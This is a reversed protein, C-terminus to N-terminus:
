RWNSSRLVHALIARVIVVAVLVVVTYVALDVPLPRDGRPDVIWLSLGGLIVGVILGGVIAVYRIRRERVQRQRWPQMGNRM